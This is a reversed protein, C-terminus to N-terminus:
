RADCKTKHKQARRDWDEGSFNPTGWTANRGDEDRFIKSKGDRRKAYIKNWTSTKQARLLGMWLVYVYPTEVENNNKHMRRRYFMTQVRAEEEDGVEDNDEQRFGCFHAIWKKIHEQLGCQQRGSWRRWSPDLHQVIRWLVVIRLRWWYKITRTTSQSHMSGGIQVIAVWDKWCKLSHM